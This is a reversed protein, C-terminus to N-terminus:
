RDRQAHHRGRRWRERLRGLSRRGANRRSLWSRSGRNTAAAPHSILSAGLCLLAGVPDELHEIGIVVPDDSPCFSLLGRRLKGGATAAPLAAVAAHFMENVTLEPCGLRKRELLEFRLGERAEIGEIEVVVPDDSRSLSLLSARRHPLL